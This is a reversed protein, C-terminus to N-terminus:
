RACEATVSVIAIPVPGVNELEVYSTVHGAKATKDAPMRWCYLAAAPEKNSYGSWGISGSKVNGPWTYGNVHDGALATEEFRVADRCGYSVKLVEGGKRHEALAGLFYFSKVGAQWMEIRTKEGPGLVIAGPTEVGGFRAKWVRFAHGAYRIAGSPVAEVPCRNGSDVSWGCLNVPFYRMDDEGGFWAKVAGKIHPDNWLPRNLNKAIRLCEEVTDPAVGSANVGMGRLINRLLAGSKKSHRLM